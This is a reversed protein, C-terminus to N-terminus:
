RRELRFEELINEYIELEDDIDRREDLTRSWMSRIVAEGLRSAIRLRCPLTVMDLFENLEKV